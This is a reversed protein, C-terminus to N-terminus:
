VLRRFIVESYKLLLHNWLLSKNKRPFECETWSPVKDASHEKNLTHIIITIIPEAAGPKKVELIPKSLHNLRQTEALAEATTPTTWMHRCHFTIRAPNPSESAPISEQSVQQDHPQESTASEEKATQKRPCFSLYHVPQRTIAKVSTVQHIARSYQETDLSFSAIRFYVKPWMSLVYLVLSYCSTPLLLCLLSLVKIEATTSPVSTDQLLNSSKCCTSQTQM